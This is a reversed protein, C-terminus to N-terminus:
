RLLKQSEGNMGHYLQANKGSDVGSYYAEANVTRRRANVIRLNVCKARIAAEIKKNDDESNVFEDVLVSVSKVWGVCFSDAYKDKTTTSYTSITKLYERRARTCQRKLVEFMYVAIEANSEVGFFQLEQLHSHIVRTGTALSVVSALYIVWRAPKKNVKVSNMNVEVSALNINYKKMLAQAHKMAQGAEHENSSKSLALCKKIKDLVQEPTM